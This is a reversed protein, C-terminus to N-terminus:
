VLSTTTESSYSKKKKFVEVSTGSSDPRIKARHEYDTTGVSIIKLGEKLINKAANLDRDLVTDCRNCTWVRDKLTLSQNIWGCHNCTKSSPFFRNIKFIQKDNWQSKYEIMDVLKGWSVDNISKSLKHNKVMGKINLDELCIIDYNNVLQTSLKHLNDNRSNSIKEHIKAVKLRQKERRKSGKQKRSLHQQNLKLLKQYKKIYRHNKAKL